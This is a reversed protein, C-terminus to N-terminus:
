PTAYWIRIKISRRIFFLGICILARACVCLSFWHDFWYTYLKSFSLSVLLNNRNWKEDNEPLFASCLKSIYVFIIYVRLISYGFYESEFRCRFLALAFSLSSLFDISNHSLRVYLSYWFAIFPLSLLLSM